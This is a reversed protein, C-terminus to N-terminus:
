IYIYSITPGPITPPQDRKSPKLLGPYAESIFFPFSLPSHLSWKNHAGTLIDMHGQGFPPLTAAHRLLKIYSSARNGWKELVWGPLGCDGCKGVVRMLTVRTRNREMTHHEFSCSFTTTRKALGCRSSKMPNVLLRRAAERFGKCDLLWFSGWLICCMMGREWDLSKMPKDECNSHFIFNRGSIHDSRRVERVWNEVVKGKKRPAKVKKYNWSRSCMTVSWARPRQVQQERKKFHEEQLYQLYKSVEEPRNVHRLRLSAWSSWGTDFLLRGECYNTGPIGM